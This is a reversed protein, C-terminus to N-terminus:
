ALHDVHATIGVAWNPFRAHAHPSDDPLTHGTRTKLGCPNHHAPTVARGFRGFGTAKAAQAYAIEPRVGAREFAISWYLDVLGVFEATANKRRAWAAADQAKVEIRGLIATM